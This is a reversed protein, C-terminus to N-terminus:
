YRYRLIYLYSVAYPCTGINNIFLFLYFVLNQKIIEKKDNNKNVPIPIINTRWM